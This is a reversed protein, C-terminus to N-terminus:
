FRFSLHFARSHAGGGRRFPALIRVRADGREISKERWFRKSNPSRHTFISFSLSRHHLRSRLLPLLFSRFLLFSSLFLFRVKALRDVSYSLVDTLYQDDKTATTDDM